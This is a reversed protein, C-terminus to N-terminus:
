GVVPSRFCVGFVGSFCGWFVFKTNEKQIGSPTDSPTNRPTEKKTHQPTNKFKQAKRKQLQDLNEFALTKLTQVKPAQPQFAGPGCPGLALTSVVKRLLSQSSWRRQGFALGRHAVLIRGQLPFRPGDRAVRVAPECCMARNWFLM